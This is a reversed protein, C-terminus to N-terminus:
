QRVISRFPCSSDLVANPLIMRYPLQALVYKSVTTSAGAIASSLISSGFQGM